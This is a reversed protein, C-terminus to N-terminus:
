KLRVPPGLISPVTTVSEVFEYRGTSSVPMGLAPILANPLTSLLVGNVRPAVSGEISSQKMTLSADLLIGISVRESGKVLSTAAYWGSLLIWRSTYLM